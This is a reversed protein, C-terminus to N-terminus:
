FRKGAPRGREERWLELREPVLRIAMAVGLFGILILQTAGASADTIAVVALTLAVVIVATALDSRVSCKM